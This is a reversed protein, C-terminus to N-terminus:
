TGLSIKWQVKIIFIYYRMIIWWITESRRLQDLHMVQSFIGWSFSAFMWTTNGLKWFWAHQLFYKFSLIIFLGWAHQLFYKFSLIIFLLLNYGGNPAFIRESLKDMCMTQEEFAWLKRSSCERFVSWKECCIIDTPLYGLM